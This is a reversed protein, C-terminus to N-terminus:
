GVPQRLEVRAVRELWPTARLEGFRERADDLLTRAEDLRGAADLWEAHELETVAIYFPMELEAFLREATALERDADSGALRARFRARQAALLPPLKGPRVDDLRALLRGITEADDLTSAAELAETLAFRAKWSTLGTEPVRDLGREATDLAQRVNGEARLLRAETFLWWMRAEAEDHRGAAALHAFLERAQETEGRECPIEVMPLFRLNQEATLALPEADAALALAEDWRGLRSLHEACGALFQVEWFRHGIRRSLELGRQHLGLADAWRDADARVVTMNNLARLAAAHLDHALAVALAGELLIEAEYPRGRKALVLSKSNLAQALTEPLDLEEALALAREIHPLARDYERTFYLFRGLQAALAALGADPEEADLAALAPELRAVAQRPNGDSFDIEALRTSVRAAAATQGLAEYTAHTRELLARADALRGARFAM